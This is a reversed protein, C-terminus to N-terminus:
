NVYDSSPRSTSSTFSSLRKGDHYRSFSGGSEFNHCFIGQYGELNLHVPNCDLKTVIDLRRYPEEGWSTRVKGAWAKSHGADQARHDLSRDLSAMQLCVFGM